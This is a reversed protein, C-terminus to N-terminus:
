SMFIGRGSIRLFPIFPKHFTVISLPAFSTVRLRRTVSVVHPLRIVLVLITAENVSSVFNRRHNQKGIVVSPMAFALIIVPVARSV